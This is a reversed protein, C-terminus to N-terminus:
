KSKKLSFVEYIPKKDADIIIRVDGQISSIRLKSINVTDDSFANLPNWILFFLFFLKSIKKLFLM